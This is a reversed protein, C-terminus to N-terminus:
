WSRPMINTSGNSYSTYLLVVFVNVVQVVLAIAISIRFLLENAMIKSATAAVDGPVILTAPVYLIGFISLPVLILYLFGATRAIKHSDMKRKTIM